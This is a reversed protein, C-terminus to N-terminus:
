FNLLALINNIVNIGNMLLYFYIMLLLLLLLIKNCGYQVTFYLTQSILVNLIYYLVNKYLLLLLLLKIESEQDM